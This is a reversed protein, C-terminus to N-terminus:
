INYTCLADLKSSSSTKGLSNNAVCRYEGSDTRNVNTITLQKKDESFRIRSSNGSTDIHSGSRIWSITPVPNGEANCSLTVNDGEPRAVSPPLGTIEPKDTIGFWDM